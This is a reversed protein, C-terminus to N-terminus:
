QPSVLPSFSAQIITNNSITIDLETDGYRGAPLDVRQAADLGAFGNPDELTQFAALDQKEQREV